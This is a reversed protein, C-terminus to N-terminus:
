MGKGSIVKIISTEKTIGFVSHLSCTYNASEETQKIILRSGSPFLDEVKEKITRMPGENRTWIYTVNRYRQIELSVCTITLSDNLRVTASLPTLLPKLLQTVTVQVTLKDAGTDDVAECKFTGSFLCM